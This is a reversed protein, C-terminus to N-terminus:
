GRQADRGEEGSAEERLRRVIEALKERDEQTDMTPALAELDRITAELISRPQSKELVWELLGSAEHWERAVASLHLATALEWYSASPTFMMSAVAARVLPLIRKLEEEAEADRRQLLLTVVNVGLYYDSPQKKFGEQYARIAAELNEAAGADDRSQKCAEYRDKYIRGLIGYSEAGGGTDAVLKEMIFIARDQDGSAGRRNLALALLQLVEPAGSVEPPLEDAFRVLDDWASLDRYNKLVDVYAFPDVNPTEMVAKEAERAQQQQQQAAPEGGRRSSTTQKFNGKRIKPYARRGAEPALGGPLEVRLEPFFEYLPSDNVIGGLSSRLTAVLAARFSEAAQGALVGDGGPEYMLVRTYSMDFPIRNGAAMILITVNRRATHRAGLEYMVDPNPSSIDVIMVESGLVLSFISKQIVAAPSLDDGRLCRLGLESVAPSIVEAYLRGFDLARGTTDPKVGFPISVYCTKM